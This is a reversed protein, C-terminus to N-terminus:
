YGLAMSCMICPEMVIFLDLDKCYYNTEEFYEEIKTKNNRKINKNDKEYIIENKEEEENLKDNHKLSGTEKSGM